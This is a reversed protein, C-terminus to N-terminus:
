LTVPVRRDDEALFYHDVATARYLRLRAPAEVDEMTWGRGGHMLSRRSFVAIGEERDDGTVEEAVASIYVAQGKDIPVSSDFIVM